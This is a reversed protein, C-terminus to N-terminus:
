KPMETMDAYETAADGPMEKRGSAPPTETIESTVFAVTSGLGSHEDLTGDDKNRDLATVSLEWGSTNAYEPVREASM